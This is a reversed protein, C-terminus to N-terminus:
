AALRFDKFLVVNHWPRVPWPMPYREALLASMPRFDRFLIARRRERELEAADFLPGLGESYNRKLKSNVEDLKFAIGLDADIGSGEAPKWTCKLTVTLNGEIQYYAENMQRQHSLFLELLDQGAQEVIEASIVTM